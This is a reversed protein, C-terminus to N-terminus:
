LLIESLCFKNYQILQWADHCLTEAWDILFQRSKALRSILLMVRTIHTLLLNKHTNECDHFM